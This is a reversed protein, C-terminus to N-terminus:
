KDINYWKFEVHNLTEDAKQNAATPAEYTYKFSQKFGSDDAKYIVMRKWGDFSNVHYQGEKHGAADGTESHGHQPLTYNFKYLLGIPAPQSKSQQSQTITSHSQIPQQSKYNDGFPNLSKGNKNASQSSPFTVPPYNNHSGFPLDSDIYVKPTGETVTFGQSDFSVANKPYNQGTPAEIQNITFPTPAVGSDTQSISSEPDDTIRTHSPSEQQSYNQQDNNQHYSQEEDATNHLVTFPTPDVDAHGNSLSHSYEPNQYNNQVKAVNKVSQHVTFPTPDIDVHGNPIPNDNQYNGLSLEPNQYNKQEEAANQHVTFPTPDASNGNLNDYANHNQYNGSSYEQNRHNSQEKGVNQVNQQVTFPTPDINHNDDFVPNSTPLDGLSNADNGNVIPGAQNLIPGEFGTETTSIVKFPEAIAKGERPVQISGVMRQLSSQISPSVLMEILKEEMRRLSKKSLIHFNGNEDTSFITVHYIGDATIFGFEGM